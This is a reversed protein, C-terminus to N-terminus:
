LPPSEASALLRQGPVRAAERVEPCRVIRYRAPIAWPEVVIVWQSGAQTRYDLRVRRHNSCAHVLTTTTEPDPRAAGRDPAPATTRRVAEAEAAVPEPLARMRMQRPPDLVARLRQRTTFRARFAATDRTDIGVLDEENGHRVSRVRSTMQVILMTDDFRGM